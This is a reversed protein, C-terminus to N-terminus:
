QADGGEQEAGDAGDAGDPSMDRIQEPSGMVSEIMRAITDAVSQRKDSEDGSDNDMEHHVTQRYERCRRQLLWAAWKPDRSAARMVVAHAVSMAKAEAEEIGLFLSLCLQDHPSLEAPETREIQELARKRGLFYWSSFTASPVRAAQHALRRPLGM